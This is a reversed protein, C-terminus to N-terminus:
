KLDSTPPRPSFHRESSFKRGLVFRTRYEGTCRWGIRELSRISAANWPYVLGWLVDSGPLTEAYVSIMRSLLSRGRYAPDVFSRCSFHETPPVSVTRHLEAVFVEGQTMWTSAAIRDGDLAVVCSSQQRDFHRLDDDHAHPNMGDVIRYAPKCLVRIDLGDAEAPFASESARTEYRDLMIQRFILKRFALRFIQATRAWGAGIRLPWSGAQGGRNASLRLRGRLAARTRPRDAMYRPRWNKLAQPHVVGLEAPIVELGLVQAMALRHHGSGGFVPELNPGIHIRVGGRERFAGDWVETRCRFRGEAKVLECQRDLRRYRAIIQDMDRCGDAVGGAELEALLVDFINTAEWPVGDRWRETCAKIKPIEQLAFAPLDWYEGGVVAGSDEQGKGYRCETM